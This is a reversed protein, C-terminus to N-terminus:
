PALASVHELRMSSKRRSSYTNRQRTPTGPPPRPRRSSGTNLAETIAKSAGSGREKVKIQMIMWLLKGGISADDVTGNAANRSLPQGSTVQDLLCQYSAWVNEETRSIDQSARFQVLRGGFAKVGFDVGNDFIDTPFETDHEMAEDKAAMLIMISLLPRLLPPAMTIKVVKDFWGFNVMGVVHPKFEYCGPVDPVLLLLLDDVRRM